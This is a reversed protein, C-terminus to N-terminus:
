NIEENQNAEIISISDNITFLYDNKIKIDSANNIKNNIINKYIGSNEKSTEKTIEKTNGKSKEISINLKKRRNLFCNEDLKFENVIHLNNDKICECVSGM